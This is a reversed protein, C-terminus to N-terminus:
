PSHHARLLFCWGDDRRQTNEILSKGAAFRGGAGETVEISGLTKPVGQDRRARPPIGKTRLGARAFSGPVRRTHVWWKETLRMPAKGKLLAFFYLLKDLGIKIL